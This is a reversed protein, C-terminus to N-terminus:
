IKIQLLFLKLGELGHPKTGVVGGEKVGKEKKVKKEKDEETVAQQQKDTLLSVLLQLGSEDKFM